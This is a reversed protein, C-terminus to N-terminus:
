RLRVCQKNPNVLNSRASLHKSYLLAVNEAGREEVGHSETVAPGLTDHVLWHLRNIRQAIIRAEARNRAFICWVKSHRTKSLHGASESTGRKGSVSLIGKLAIVIGEQRAACMRDAESECDLIDLVVHNM